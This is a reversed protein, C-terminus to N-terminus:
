GYRPRAVVGARVRTTTRVGAGRQRAEGALDDLVALFYAVKPKKAWPGGGTTEARISASREKTIARAQYLREIFTEVSLGSKRYIAVVRTATSTLPAEDGLERAFDEVYPLLQLRVPDYKDVISSDPKRFKSDEVDGPEFDRNSTEPISRSLNVVQMQESQDSPRSLNLVHDADERLDGALRDLAVYDLTYWKTRDVRHQNYVTTSLVLPPVQGELGNVIRRLTALSWFPLQQHWEEYTNYVWRRGDREKGSTLLWYHLQQLFIAENLGVLVALSPLVLLPPEAILLRSGDRWRATQSNAQKSM